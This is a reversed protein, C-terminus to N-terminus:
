RKRSGHRNKVTTQRIRKALAEEKATESIIWDATHQEAVEVMKNIAALDQRMEARLEDLTYLDFNLYDYEPDIQAAPNIEKNEPM